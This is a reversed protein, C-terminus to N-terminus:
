GPVHRSRVAASRASRATEPRGGASRTRAPAARTANSSRIAPATAPTTSSKTTRRLSPAYAYLRATTTSSASWPTPSTTRPMSRSSEVGRWSQSPARSPTGAGRWAWTGSMSPGSPARSALRWPATVSASRAAMPSSASSTRAYRAKVTPRASGPSGTVAASSTSRKEGSTRAAAGSAAHHAEDPDPERDRDDGGAQDGDDRGSAAQAPDLAADRDDGGADRHPHQVDDEADPDRALALAVGLVGRAVEVALVAVPGVLRRGLGRRGGRRGRGVGMAARRGGLM